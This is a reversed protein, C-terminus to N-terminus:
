INTFNSLFLLSNQLISYFKSDYTLWCVFCREETWYRVARAFFEIERRNTGELQRTVRNQSAIVSQRRACLDCLAWSTDCSELVKGDFVRAIVRRRCVEESIYQQFYLKEATTEAIQPYPSTPILCYSWAPTDPDRGARGAEQIFNTIEYRGPMFHIVLNVGPFDYGAGIAGTALLINAKTEFLSLQSLKEEEPLDSTFRAAQPQLSNYLENIDRKTRCFIITKAKQGTEPLNEIIFQKIWQTLFGPYDKPQLRASLREVRYSLSKIVLDGRLIYPQIGLALQQTLEDQLYLPLTATAFIMSVPLALTHWIRKMVPRYSKSLPILHCEDWIVRALRQQNILYSAMEMFSTSIVHEIQVLILRSGAELGQYGMDPEWLIPRLGLASAKYLLDLKLSILPIIIITVQNPLISAGFLFLTTKGAATPLILYLYPLRKIILYFADRQESSRFDAKNNGLFEQLMSTLIGQDISSSSLLPSYPLSRARQGADLSTEASETPETPQSSRAPQIPHSYLSLFEQFQGRTVRQSPQSAGSPTPYSFEVVPMELPMSPLRPLSSLKSTPQIEAKPKLFARNYLLSSLIMQDPSIGLYTHWQQSFTILATQIDARVGQFSAINRGYINLGTGRSHHMQDAGLGEADLSDEALDPLTDSLGLGYRIFGQMLHRWLYINIRQGILESTLNKLTQSLVKSTFPKATRHDYFLLFHTEPLKKNLWLLLAEEFPRIYALYALILWSLSQPLARVADREQGNRSFNKSYALRILFIHSVPDLFLNRPVIATNQWIVQNIETGRAPAGSTIYCLTLLTKLWASSTELYTLAKSQSIEIAFDNNERIERVWSPTALAKQLLFDSSGSPQYATLFSWRNAM